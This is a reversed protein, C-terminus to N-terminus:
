RNVNNKSWKQHYYARNRQWTQSDVGGSQSGLHKGEADFVHAPIIGANDLRRRYDLDEFYGPYFQEDYKGIKQWVERRQLFASWNQTCVVPAPVSRMKRLMDTGLTADDNMLLVDADGALSDIINWSAAVGLNRGPQIIQVKSHGTHRGKYEGGNDIVFIRSPVCTGNLLSDICNDLLNYCKLTPIGAVIPRTPKPANPPPVTQRVLKFPLGGFKGEWRKLKENWAMPTAHSNGLLYLRREDKSNGQWLEWQKIDLHEWRKAVGNPLL